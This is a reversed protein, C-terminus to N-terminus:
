TKIRCMVNCGPSPPATMESLAAIFGIMSDKRSQPLSQQHAGPQSLVQRFRYRSSTLLDGELNRGYIYM